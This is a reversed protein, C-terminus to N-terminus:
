GWRWWFRWLGTSVVHNSLTVSQQLNVFDIKWVLLEQYIVEPEQNRAHFEIDKTQNQQELKSFDGIYRNSVVFNEPTGGPFGRKLFHSHSQSVWLSAPHQVRSFSPRRPGSTGSAWPLSTLGIFLQFSVTPIPGTTTKNIFACTQSDSIFEALGHVWHLNLITITGPPTLDDRHWM